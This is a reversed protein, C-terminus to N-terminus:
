HEFHQYDKCSKWDGGWRFGHSTFLKYALDNHDIKYNFEKERDVFPTATSPQVDLSGNKRTKYYPNYLPNLDVALGLAHKSMVTTGKVTRPCYCSTNNDQMQAEDDNGYLHPLVMRQIPYKAKYLEKFIEVLTDAISRHCIMEGRHTKNDHDWHLVRIHRLDNRNIANNNQIMHWLSDSVLAITFYKDIGSDKIQETTATHDAKQQASATTDTTTVTTNSTDSKKESKKEYHCSALAIAVITALFLIFHKSRM